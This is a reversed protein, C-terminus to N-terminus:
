SQEFRFQCHFVIMYEQKGLVVEVASDEDLRDLCAHKKRVQIQEYRRM